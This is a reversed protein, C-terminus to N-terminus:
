HRRGAFWGALADVDAFSELPPVAEWDDWVLDIWGAVQRCKPHTARYRDLLHGVGAPHLTPHLARVAELTEPRLTAIVAIAVDNHVQRLMEVEDEFIWPGDIGRVLSLAAALHGHLMLLRDLTPEQRVTDM